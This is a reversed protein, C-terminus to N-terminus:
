APPAFMRGTLDALLTRPSSLYRETTFSAALCELTEDHFCFVYHNLRDRWGGRHSPHVSNIQEEADIWRSNIVRHAAYTRLGKGTL